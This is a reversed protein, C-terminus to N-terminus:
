IGDLSASRLSGAGPGRLANFIYLCVFCSTRGHGKRMVCKKGSVSSHNPSCFRCLRDARRRRDAMSELLPDRVTSSVSQSFVVAIM